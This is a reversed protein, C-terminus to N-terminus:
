LHIRMTTCEQFFGCKEYFEIANPFCSLVIKYCKLKKAEEIMAVILAKGIGRNRYNEKVTVDEIFGAVGGDRILKKQIHFTACGVIENDIEAVFLYNDNNMYSVLNDDTIETITWTEKLCDLVGLKDPEKYHRIIM